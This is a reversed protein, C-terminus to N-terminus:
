RVLRDKWIYKGSNGAIGIYIIYIVHVVSLLPLYKLLETRHAFRTVPKLFLMEALAKLVLALLATIWNRSDFFGALMSVLLMVNFFWIAVGLVVIKKDKYRTSKSAWRKRQSIFESLSAKADTFVIADSSKCFGISEPYRSAVKHLFLEDDGSALDDIGKFGGLEVFVEKKYALNAGNCTSPMKNGITSAGLGILYLFELTQLREFFSIENAYVVPSSILKSGTEEYFGVIAKLWYPKMRCDADTTIILEGTALNIAESIAKKKYSNLKEKENLKILRVGRDRYSLIIASTQDSSHDDVVILERLDAPYSQALINEITLAIKDEENRAAILISVKTRPIGQVSVYPPISLWGKRLFLIASVYLCTLM